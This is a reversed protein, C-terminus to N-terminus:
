NFNDEIEMVALFLSQADPFDRGTKKREDEMAKEINGISCGFELVAEIMASRNGSTVDGNSALGGVAGVGSRDASGDEETNQKGRSTSETFLKEDTKTEEKKKVETLKEKGTYVIGNSLGNRDLNEPVEYTSLLSNTEPHERKRAQAFVCDPSWTVHADLPCDEDDWDRLTIGCQFCRARDSNGVYFFGEAAMRAPSQHDRKIPWWTYSSLRVQYSRYSPYKPPPSSEVGNGVERPPAPQIEQGFWKRIYACDPSHIRHVEIVDYSELWNYLQLGCTECVVKDDNGTYKFGSIALQLSSKEGNWGQFTSYRRRINDAETPIQGNTTVNTLSNRSNHSEETNRKAM